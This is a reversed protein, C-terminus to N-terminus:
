VLQRKYDVPTTGIHKKFVRIFTNVNSFGVKESIDKVKESTTELLVISKRIRFNNIYENLNIGVKDKFYASIYNSTLNLKEALLEVYIDEFYHEQIYNIISDIIYDDQKKSENIHKAIKCVFENVVAKFEDISSSNTIHFYIGNFDISPPVEYYSKILVKICCNVIENCLARIYFWNVKKRFNYDIVNTILSVCEADRGNYLSNIFQEEQELPFYFNNASSAEFDANPLVQTIAILARYKFIELASNYALSLQSIDQYVKGIVVTFFVYEEESNLNSVIYNLLKMVKNIDEHINIVSVIQDNEVQFTVSDNFSSTAQFQIMETLYYTAMGENFTLDNHFAPKFHVKYYVLIYSRKVDLQNKISPYINKIHSQYQFVELLSNKSDLDEKYISNQVIINQINDKLCHLNINNSTKSNLSNFSPSKKLIEVIQKVPNNFKKVIILSILLSIMLSIITILKFVLNAKNLQAKLKANSLLKRYILNNDKSHRIFLYGEDTKIYNLLNNNSSMYSNDVYIKGDHSVDIASDTKDFSSYLMNQNQDLIYINNAFNKDITTFLANMNILTVMVYPSNSKSKLAIPMLHLEIDTKSYYHSIDSFTSSPYYKYNFNKKMESHWFEETYTENYYFLEFFTKTNYTSESTLINESATLPVIFISNICYQSYDMISKYYKFSEIILKRAAPSAEKGAAIPTFFDELSIKLVINKVQLFTNDIKNAVNDLRESTNKIIEEEINRIFFNYSLLYLFSLVFIVLMFSAALKIFMSQSFNLNLKFMPVKMHYRWLIGRITFFM